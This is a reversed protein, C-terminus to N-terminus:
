CPIYGDLGTAKGTDPAAYTRDYLMDDFTLFGDLFKDRLRVRSNGAFFLRVALFNFERTFPCELFSVLGLRLRQCIGEVFGTGCHGIDLCLALGDIGTLQERHAIQLTKGAFGVLCQRRGIHKGGRLRQILSPINGIGTGVAAIQCRILSDLDIGRYSTKCLVTNCTKDIFRFEFADIIVAFDFCVRSDCRCSFPRCGKGSCLFRDKVTDQVPETSNETFFGTCYVACGDHNM